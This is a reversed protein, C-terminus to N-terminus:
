FLKQLSVRLAYTGTGSTCATYSTAYQINVSAASFITARGWAYSTTANLFPLQTLPTAGGIVYVPVTQTTKTGTQDTWSLQFGVVGPGPTACAVTQNMYVDVAYLGAGMPATSTALLTTAGIAATQATLSVVADSPSTPTTLVVQTGDYNGCVPVGAQIDGDVLTKRNWGGLINKAGLGNVNLTANGTNLVNPLFCFSQGAVWGALAPSPTIAYADTGVVDTYWRSTNAQFDSLKMVFDTCDAAPIAAWMCFRKNGALDTSASASIYGFSANAPSVGFKVYGPEGDSAADGSDVELWSPSTASGSGLTITGPSGAVGTNAITGNVTLTDTTKNFTFTSKGGLTAADNYQVNTDSGGPTASGAGGAGGCNVCTTQAWASASLLIFVAILKHM